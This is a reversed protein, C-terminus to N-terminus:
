VRTEGDQERACSLHLLRAAIAREPRCLTSVVQQPGVLRRSVMEHAPEWPDIAVRAWWYTQYFSTLGYTNFPDAIHACALFGCTTVTACAEEAVERILAQGATEGPEVGGGPLTWEKDDWSVLVVRRDSTFCIGIAHTVEAAPPTWGSAMLVSWAPEPMPPWGATPDM